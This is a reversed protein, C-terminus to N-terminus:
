ALPLDEGISKIFDNIDSTLHRVMTQTMFNRFVSLNETERTEVLAKIYEEKDDAFIRSPILGYEFQLWNMVLRAM